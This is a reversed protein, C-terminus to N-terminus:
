PQYYSFVIEVEEDKFIDLIIQKVKKWELSDIGCGIKPFALKDITINDERATNLVEKLRELAMKITEYTPKHYVKEKTILTCTDEFIFCDGIVPDYDCENCYRILEIKVHKYNNFEVAIGGGLFLDASGCQVKLWDEGYSFLNNNTESWKM